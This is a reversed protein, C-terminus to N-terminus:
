GKEQYTSRLIFLGSLLFLGFGIRIINIFLGPFCSFFSGGKGPHFPMAVVWQGRTFGESKFVYRGAPNIVASPGNNIVHILPVRNEIARMVTTAMHQNPQSTKGFWGDQSQVLVIKGAADSGISDAVFEPFLPEYCIRPIIRMEGIKFIKTQSGPTLNDLYDGLIWRLLPIKDTLPSYESFPVLKIKDYSDVLEGSENMYLITNFFQKKVGALKFTADYFLLPTAMQTVQRAFAVQVRSWYTYGFFHGEPWVILKAGQESLIQSMEMELPSERSYGEKPMPRSLSVMRNPQVIGIPRSQWSNIEKDWKQLQVGGIVFWILLIFGGILIWGRGTPRLPLGVLKFILVNFLVMIFDLGYIGTFEIPQIAPLFGSQSDGLKFEFIMPFLSFVAVFVVPLIISEDWQLNKRIWCYLVTVLGFAQGICFAYLLTFLLSFPFSIRLANEAWNAIWYFGISLAFIGTCLGILYAQIYSKDDLAILLPVFCIWGCLFLDFDPYSIGLLVGSVVAM